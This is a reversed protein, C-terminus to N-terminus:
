AAEAEMMKAYRITMEVWNPESTTLLEMYVSTVIFHRSEDSVVLDSRSQELQEFFQTAAAFKARDPQMAHSTAPPRDLDGHALGMVSELSRALRGGIGKPSTSSIWQSVQAQTWRAGGYRRVWETPGGAEAILRRMNETRATSADMGFM